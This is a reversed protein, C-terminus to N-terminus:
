RYIIGGTPLVANNERRWEIRFVFVFCINLFVLHQVLNEITKLKFFLIYDLTYSVQTSPLGSSHVGHRRDRVRQGGRQFLPPPPDHCCFSMVVHPWSFIPDQGGYTMVYHKDSEMPDKVESLVLYGLIRQRLIPFFPFCNRPGNNPGGAMHELAPNKQRTCQGQLLGNTNKHIPEAAGERGVQIWSLSCWWDVLLILLKGFRKWQKQVCLLEAM